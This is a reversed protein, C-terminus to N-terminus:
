RDDQTTYMDHHHSSFQSDHATLRPNTTNLSARCSHHISPYLQSKTRSTPPRPAFAILSSQISIIFTPREIRPLHNPYSISSFTLISAVSILESM